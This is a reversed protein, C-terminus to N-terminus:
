LRVLILVLRIADELFSSSQEVRRVDVIIQKVLLFNLVYYRRLVDLIRVRMTVLPDIEVRLVAIVREHDALIDDLNELIQLFNLYTTMWQEHIRM